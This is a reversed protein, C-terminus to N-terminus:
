QRITPKIDLIDESEGRTSKNASSALSRNRVCAQFFPHSPPTNERNYSYCWWFFAAVVTTANGSCNKNAVEGPEKPFCDVRTSRTWFYCSSGSVTPLVRDNVWSELTGTKRENPYRQWCHRCTWSRRRVCQDKRKIRDITRDISNPWDILWNVLVWGVLCKDIMQTFLWAFCCNM